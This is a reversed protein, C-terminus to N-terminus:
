QLLRREDTNSEYLFVRNDIPKNYDVIFTAGRSPKLNEIKELLEKTPSNGIFIYNLDGNKADYMRVFGRGDYKLDKCFNVFPKSNGSYIRVVKVTDKIYM